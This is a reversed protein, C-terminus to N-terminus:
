KGSKTKLIYILSHLNAQLVTVIGHLPAGISGATQSLLADKGPLKALKMLSDKAQFSGEIIGVKFQPIDKKSAFKDLVQLPAIPDEETLVFATPGTLVTDELSKEPLKAKNGALRFLTNKAVFMRAGVKKLNKKLEQQDKVSLGTYDVLVVSTALKLEETLNEVFFAKETKKM